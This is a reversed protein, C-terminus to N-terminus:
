NPSKVLEMEGRNREIKMEFSFLFEKVVFTLKKRWKRKKEKRKKERRSIAGFM